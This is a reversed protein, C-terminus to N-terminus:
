KSSPSAFACHSGGCCIKDLMDLSAPEDALHEALCGDKVVADSERGSEDRLHAKM